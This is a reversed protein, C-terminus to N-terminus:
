AYAGPLRTHTQVLWAAFVGTADQSWVMSTWNELREKGRCSSGIASLEVDQELGVMIM